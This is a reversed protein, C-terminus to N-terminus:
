PILKSLRMAAGLDGALKLQGSLYASMVGLKRDLLRSFTEESASITCDATADIGDSVDVEQGDIRVTWSKGGDVAFAYSAKMGSLDLQAARAPIGAIFSELEGSM